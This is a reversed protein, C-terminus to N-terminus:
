SAEDIDILLSEALLQAITVIDARIQLVAAETDADLEGSEIFNNQLKDVAEKLM